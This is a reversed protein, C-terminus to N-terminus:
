GQDSNRDNIEDMPEMPDNTLLFSAFLEAAGDKLKLQPVAFEYHEMMRKVVPHTGSAIIKGGKMLVKDVFGIVEGDRTLPIPLETHEIAAAITEQSLDAFGGDGFPGYRGLEIGDFLFDDDAM